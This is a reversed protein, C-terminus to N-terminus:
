GPFHDADPETPDDADDGYRDLIMLFLILGAVVGAAIAAVIAGAFALIAGLSLPGLLLFFFWGMRASGSNRGIFFCFVGSALLWPPVILAILSGLAM